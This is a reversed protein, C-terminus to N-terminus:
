AILMQVVNRTLSIDYIRVAPDIKGDADIAVIDQANYKKTDLKLNEIKEDTLMMYNHYVHEGHHFNSSMFADLGRQKSYLIVPLPISVPHKEGNDGVFDIIHFDHNNLVHGFIIEKADFTKKGEKHTSDEQAAAPTFVFLWLVSFGAVLLSKFRGSLM